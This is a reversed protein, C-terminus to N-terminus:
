SVPAAELNRASWARKYGRRQGLFARCEATNLVVYTFRHSQRTGDLMRLPNLLGASHQSWKQADRKELADGHLEEESLVLSKEGGDAAALFLGHQM